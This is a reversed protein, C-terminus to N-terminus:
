RYMEPLYILALASILLVLSIVLILLLLSDQAHHPQTRITRM